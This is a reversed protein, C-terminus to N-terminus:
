RKRREWLARRAAPALMFLRRHREPIRRLDRKAIVVRPHVENLNPDRFWTRTFVFMLAPRPERALNATGGHFVRYDFFFSRGFAGVMREEPFERAVRAESPPKARLAARHSGPWIATPGNDENMDCLPVCLTVAYPPLGSLDGPFGRKKGGIVRDFRLPGDIHQHQSVAGPEAVVTELSGICYSSGLLVGLMEHLAPNAYFRPDLFPGEFPLVAAYRGAIDRVLGRERLEGSAHRRLVESRLRKLLPRPFLGGFAVAGDREMASRVKRLLRASPKRADAKSFEITSITVLCYIDETRM